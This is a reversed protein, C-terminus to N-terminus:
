QEACKSGRLTLQISHYKKLLAMIKLDYENFDCSEKFFIMPRNKWQVLLKIINRIDKTIDPDFTNLNIDHEFIINNELEARFLKKETETM